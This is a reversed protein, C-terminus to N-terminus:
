RAPRRMGKVARKATEIVNEYAMEVAESEGLGIKGADRKVRETSQYSGITKLADYLRQAQSGPSRPAVAVFAAATPTTSNM